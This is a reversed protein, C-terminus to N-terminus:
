DVVWDYDLTIILFCFSAIFCFLGFVLQYGLRCCADISDLFVVWYAGFIFCGWWLGCLCDWILCILLCVGVWVWLTILWGIWDVGFCGVM